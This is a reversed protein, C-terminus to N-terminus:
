HEQTSNAVLIDVSSMLVAKEKVSKSLLVCRTHYCKFNVLATSIHTRHKVCTYRQTLFHTEIPIGQISDLNTHSHTSVMIQHHSHDMTHQM